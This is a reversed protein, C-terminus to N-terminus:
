EKGSWLARECAIIDNALPTRPLLRGIESKAEMSTLCVYQKNTKKKESKVCMMMNQLKIGKCKSPNTQNSIFFQMHIACSDYIFNCIFKM